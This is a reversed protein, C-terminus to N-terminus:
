LWRWPGYGPQIYGHRKSYLLLALDKPYPDPSGVFTLRPRIFLVQAKGHVWAAWWTTSVSAPVLMAIAAGREGEIWAKRAWEGANGFPPNLWCWGTTPWDRTLANMEETFFEGEVANEPTAALDIRFRTVGLMRRVADLFAVPTGQDQRSRGRKITPGTGEM